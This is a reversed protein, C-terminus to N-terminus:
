SRACHAESAVVRGKAGGGDAHIFASLMRGPGKEGFVLMRYHPDGADTDSVLLLGAGRAEDRYFDAVKALSAKTDFAYRTLCGRLRELGKIKAGPYAAGLSSPHAAGAESALAILVLGLALPRM